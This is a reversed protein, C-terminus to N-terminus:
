LEGAQLRHEGALPRHEAGAGGARSAAGHNGGNAVAAAGISEASEEAQRPSSLDVATESAAAPARASNRM